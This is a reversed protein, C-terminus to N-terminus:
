SDIESRVTRIRAGASGTVVNIFPLSQKICRIVNGRRLWNVLQADSTSRLRGSDGPKEIAISRSPEAVHNGLLESGFVAERDVLYGARNEGSRDNRVRRRRERRSRDEDSLTFVQVNLFFKTDINQRQQISYIKMM